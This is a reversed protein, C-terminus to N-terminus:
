HVSYLYNFITIVILLFIEKIFTYCTTIWYLWWRNWHLHVRKEYNSCLDVHWYPIVLTDRLNFACVILLNKARICESETNKNNTFYIKNHRLTHWKIKIFLYVLEIQKTLIQALWYIKSSAYMKPYNLRNNVKQITIFYYLQVTCIFM